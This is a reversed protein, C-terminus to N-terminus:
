KQRPFLFEPNAGRVSPLGIAKSFANIATESFLGSIFLEGGSFADHFCFLPLTPNGRRYALVHDFFLPKDTQGGESSALQALKDIAGATVRVEFSRGNPHEASNHAFSTFYIKKEDEQEANLSNLSAVTSLSPEYSGFVIVDDESLIHPIAKFFADPSFEGDVKWVDHTALIIYM